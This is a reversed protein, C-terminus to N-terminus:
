EMWSIRVVRLFEGSTVLYSVRVLGVACLVECSSLISVSFGRPDETSLEGDAMVLSRLLPLVWRLHLRAVLLGQVQLVEDRVLRKTFRHLPRAVFAMARRRTARRGPCGGSCRLDWIRRWWGSLNTLLWQIRGGEEKCGSSSSSDVQFCWREWKLVFHNGGAPSRYLNRTREEVAVSYDSGFRLHLCLVFIGLSIAMVAEAVEGLFVAGAIEEDVGQVSVALHPQLEPRRILHSAVAVM